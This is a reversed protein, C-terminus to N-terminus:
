EMFSDRLINLNYRDPFLCILCKYKFELQGAFQQVSENHEQTLQYFEQQLKDTTQGKGYRMELAEMLVPLEKDFGVFNLYDRMNDTMSGIMGAKIAENDYTKWYGKIQSKFQEYSGEGKPVPEIGSFKTLTPMKFPPKTRTEPEVEPTEMSGPSPSGTLSSIKSSTVEIQQISQEFCTLLDQINAKYHKEESILQENFQNVRQVERRM